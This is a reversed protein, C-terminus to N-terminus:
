PSSRPCSPSPATATSMSSRINSMSLIQRPRWHVDLGADVAREMLDWRGLDNEGGQPELFTSPAKPHLPAKPGHWSMALSSILAVTPPGPTAFDVRPVMKSALQWKKAEVALTFIRNAESADGLELRYIDIRPVLVGLAMEAAWLSRWEPGLFHLLFSKDSALRGAQDFDLLRNFLQRGAHPSDQPVHEILHTFMARLQDPNVNFFSTIGHSFRSTQLFGTAECWPGAFSTWLISKDRIGANITPDAGQALFHRLFDEEVRSM